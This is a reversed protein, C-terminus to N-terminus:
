KPGWFEELGEKPPRVDYALVDRAVFSRRDEAWEEILLVQRHAPAYRRMGIGSRYTGGPVRVVAYTGNIAEVVADTTETGVHMLRAGRVIDKADRAWLKWTGHM